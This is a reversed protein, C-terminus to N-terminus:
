TKTEHSAGEKQYQAAAEEDLIPLHIRVLTGEDPESFFELGYEPGFVLQIRRHINRVGIGSGRSRQLPQREDLLIDLTEQPIGLGNDQVDIYLNNEDRWAHVTILGDEDVAAM